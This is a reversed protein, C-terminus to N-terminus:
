LVVVRIPVFVRSKWPSVDFAYDKSRTVNQMSFLIDFLRADPIFYRFHM